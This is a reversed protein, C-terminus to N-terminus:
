WQNHVDDDVGGGDRAQVVCNTKVPMGREM